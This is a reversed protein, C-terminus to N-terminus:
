RSMEPECYYTELISKLKRKGLNVDNLEEIISNSVLDMLPQDVMTILPLVNLVSQDWEKHYKLIDDPYVSKRITNEDKPQFPISINLYGYDDTLEEGVEIDRIAIELNYATSMCNANFSHNVFRGFDWCLVHRGHHDRYSYKNIIEQYLPELAEAEEPSFVLDFKDHAWTITGKPIKKIAVVGYGVEDDIFQLKTDPHIM